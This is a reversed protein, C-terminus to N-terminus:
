RDSEFSGVSAAEPSVLFSGGCRSCRPWLITSVSGITLSSGGSWGADWTISGSSASVSLVGSLSSGLPVPSPSPEPFLARYLERPGSPLSVAPGHVTSACLLGVLVLCLLVLARAKWRLERFEWSSPAVLSEETEGPLSGLGVLDWPSRM